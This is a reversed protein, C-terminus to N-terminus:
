RVLALSLGAWYTIALVGAARILLMPLTAKVIEGLPREFRYSSLFLNMGVPPTMYGLELNAVFLIGLHVPDVGFEVGLPAILPVVVVIASFMDMLCGVVLLFLNLALLFVFRSGIESRAWAVLQAPVQADVLYSSFGMAVGLIVLVGGLVVVCHVVVPLLRGFPLDRQIICQAVFVYLATLAAAEVVTARGSFLAGLAVAPVLLEWKAGWLAGGAERWAFPAGGARTVLGERVGWACTLAVLLAGPILGALFLDEIPTQAVIGFLILPLSPPFLLGLSGAATLLGLAFPARYGDARLAQFLLAGLALITVGSGGTFATFFACLLACVVATGGPMWGFLARFVRLLRVSAQGEALLFGALTFLPIAALTPSVALRYTEVPVAAIPVGAALFLALAAGGLLAFLPMGLAAAGILIALAPWAPKSEALQPWHGLAAGALLGLVAIARATWRARPSAPPPAGAGVLEAPAGAGARWVLRLAILAFSIPLALQAIWTALGVAVESGAQREVLVLELSARCLLAAVAAGVAAVAAEVPTRARRPLFAGTALALLKGERAALAAGLFAVWLTLHQVFPGAGPIGGGLARAGIEALPLAVM